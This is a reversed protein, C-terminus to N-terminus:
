GKSGLAYSLCCPCIRSSSKALNPSSLTVAKEKVRHFHTEPYWVHIHNIQKVNINCKYNCHAFSLQRVTNYSAYNGLGPLLGSAWCVRLLGSHLIKMHGSSLLTKDRYCVSHVSNILDAANMKQSLQFSCM